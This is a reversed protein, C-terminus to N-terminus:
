DNRLAYVGRSGGLFAINGDFAAGVSFHHGDAISWRVSGTNADLVTLQGLPHLVFVTNDASWVWAATGSQQRKSRWREAGSEGDIAVVVGSSSGAFVTQGNSALYRVDRITQPNSDAPTPIEPSKWRLVGTARDLGYIPGDRAGAIVVTGSVVPDITSTPSTPDVNHPLWNQWLIAGSRTDVAALGGANADLDTFAVYVTDDVVAGVYTLVREGSRLTAKWVEVGSQHDVGFIAGSSSGVIAV